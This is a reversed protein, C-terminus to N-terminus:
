YQDRVEVAHLIRSAAAWGNSSRDKDSCISSTMIQMVVYFDLQATLLTLSSYVTLLIGTLM